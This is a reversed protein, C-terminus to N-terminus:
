CRSSWTFFVTVTKKAEPTPRMTQSCHPQIIALLQDRKFVTRWKFHQISNKLLWRFDIKNTCLGVIRMWYWLQFFSNIYFLLKRQNRLKTLWRNWRWWWRKLLNWYVMSRWIRLISVVHMGKRRVSAPQNGLLRLRNQSLLQWMYQM